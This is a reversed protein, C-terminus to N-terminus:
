RGDHLKVGGTSTPGHPEQGRPRARGFEEVEDLVLGRRLPEAAEAAAFAVGRGRLFRGRGTWAIREPGM